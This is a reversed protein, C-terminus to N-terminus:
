SHVSFLAAHVRAHVRVHLFWLKMACWKTTCSKEIQAAWKSEAQGTKVLDWSARADLKGLQAAQDARGICSHPQSSLAMKIMAPSICTVRSKSGGPPGKLLGTGHSRAFLKPTGTFWIQGSSCYWPAHLLRHVIIQSFEMCVILQM